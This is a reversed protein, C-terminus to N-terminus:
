DKKFEEKVQNAADEVTKAVSNVKELDAKGEFRYHCGLFLSIIVVVLSIHWAVLLILIFVWVPLNVITTEEREVVLFNENGKKWLEAIKKTIWWDKFSEHEAKNKGKKGCEEIVSPCNKSTEYETTFSEKSPGTTKGEKELMIMADLIDGNAKELAEKAEEYSVDAKQRLKEVKEFLEM